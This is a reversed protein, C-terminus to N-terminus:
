QVRILKATAVVHITSSQFVGGNANVELYVSNKNSSLSLVREMHHQYGLELKKQVAVDKAKGALDIAASWQDGIEKVSMDFQGDAAIVSETYSGRDHKNELVAVSVSEIVFGPASQQWTCSETNGSDFTGAGQHALVDCAQVEKESGLQQPDDIGSQFLYGNYRDLEDTPNSSWTPTQDGEPAPSSTEGCAALVFPTITLFGIIKFSIMNM